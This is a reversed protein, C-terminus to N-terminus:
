LVASFTVQIYTRISLIHKEGFPLVIQQGFSRSVEGSWIHEQVKLDPLASTGEATDISM